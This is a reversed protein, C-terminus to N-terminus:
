TKKITTSASAAPANSDEDNSEEGKKFSTLLQKEQQVARFFQEQLGSLEAQSVKQTQVISRRQELAYYYAFEAEVRALVCAKVVSSTSEVSLKSLVDQAQGLKWDAFSNQDSSSVPCAEAGIQVAQTQSSSSSQGNKYSKKSRQSLSIPMARRACATYLGLLVENTSGSSPKLRDSSKKREELKQDVLGNRSTSM